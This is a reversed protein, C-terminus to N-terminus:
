QVFTSAGDLQEARARAAEVVSAPAGTAELLAIATRTSAPGARVRYDFSLGDSGITERFHVSAYCDRLLGVLEGDHTAVLVVHRASPTQTLMARLVAEGAALREVTNTGRLLEDLIFLTPEMRAADGLLAVVGDAEVQYYSKGAALDDARGILSRVRLPRGRWSSAPCTGIANALVAAIGISRLYTSKGAMNAGTVIVGRGPQLHVDNAVPQLLLPHWVEAGVTDIDEPATPIAWPRPEARLSAVGLALDVEGVWQAVRALTPGLERLRRAGFLLANADVVFLINIYEWFSAALEGEEIPDRGIWWALRALPQLRVTDHAAPSSAAAEPIAALRTAVKILPGLQRMPSLLGPLQWATAVRVGINLVAIAVCALFARPEFPLAVISALMLVPLVPFGWYWWRTRILDPRTIAWFRRGLARGTGALELGIAERLAPSRACDAALAELGPSMSWSLGGRVRRYAIQRGLTTHTRDIGALVRGLDLDSWTREDVPYPGDADEGLERWAEAVDEDDVEAGAVVRGWGARLRALLRQKARKSQWEAVVGVILTTALLLGLAIPLM